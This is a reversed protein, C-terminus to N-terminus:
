NNYILDELVELQNFGFYHTGFRLAHVYGNKPNINASAVIASFWTTYDRPTASSVHSVVLQRYGAYKVGNADNFIVGINMPTGEFSTYMQGAFASLNSVDLQPYDKLSRAERFIYKALYKKWIAPKIDEIRTIAPKGYAPLSINVFEMTRRICSDAPAFFTIQESSFVQEMGAYKIVKVLSDFLDPRSQLYQLVTGNYVGENVGGDQYYDKKCSVLLTFVLTVVLFTKIYFSRM